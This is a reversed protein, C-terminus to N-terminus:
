SARGIEEWTSFSHLWYGGTLQVILEPLRGQITIDVIELRELKKLCNSIRRDGSSSGFFISRPREVRWGIELDITAQGWHTTSISGDKRTRNRPSLEGLEFFIATGYGRWTRSVPLGIFSRTM